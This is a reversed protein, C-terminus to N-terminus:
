DLGERSTAKRRKLWFSVLSCLSVSKALNLQRKPVASLCPAASRVTQKGWRRHFGECRERCPMTAAPFLNSFRFGGRTIELAPM